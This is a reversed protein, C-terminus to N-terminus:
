YCKGTSFRTENCQTTEQKIFKYSKNETTALFSPNEVNRPGKQSHHQCHPHILM